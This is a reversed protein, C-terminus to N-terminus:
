SLEGGDEHRKHVGKQFAHFLESADKDERIAKQMIQELLPERRAILYQICPCRGDAIRLAITLRYELDLEMLMTLRDVSTDDLEQEM